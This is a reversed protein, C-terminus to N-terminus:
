LGELVAALARFLAALDRRQMDTLPGDDPLLGALEAGVQRRLNPMADPGILTGAAERIRRVLEGGTPVAQSEALTAAQRYLAALDRAHERAQPDTAADKEYAAKLRDRLPNPAPPVPAGSITVSRFQAKGDSIVLLRFTGPTESRLIATTGDPSVRLSPGADILAWESKVSAALTVDSNVLATGTVPAWKVPPVPPAPPVIVIDGTPPQATAASVLAVALLAGHAVRM